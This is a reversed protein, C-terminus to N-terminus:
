PWLPDGLCGGMLMVLCFGCHTGMRLPEGDRGHQVLWVVQDPYRRDREGPWSWSLDDGGGGPLVQVAHVTGRPLVLVPRLKGGHLSLCVGIFVNGETTRRADRVLIHSTVSLTQRVSVPPHLLLSPQRVQLVLNLLHEEDAAVDTVLDDTPRVIHLVELLVM